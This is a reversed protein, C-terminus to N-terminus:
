TFGSTYFPIGLAAVQGHRAVVAPWWLWETVTIWTEPWSLIEYTTWWWGCVRRWIHRDFVM